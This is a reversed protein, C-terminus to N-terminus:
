MASGAPYTGLVRVSASLETLERIAEAIAGAKGPEAVLDVYFLYEFPSGKLPRSEIKTLDISRKAFPELSRYLAGAVNGLKFVLTTKSKQSSKPPATEEKSILLFRTYNEAHDQINDALVVGGYIEANRRGAIAASDQLNERIVKEVAGATDFEPVAQIEPHARFFRECQALAVPHSMIKRVHELKVGPAGVVAHEIRCITEGNIVLKNENLLDYNLHVSGALTNEVPIVGYRATGNNVAEFVDEFRVCPLLRASTTLLQWCAVETFAGRSGQYAADYMSM